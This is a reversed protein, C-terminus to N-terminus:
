WKPSHQVPSRLPMGLPLTPTHSTTAQQEELHNQIWHLWAAERSSAVCSVVGCGPALSMEGADSIFLM